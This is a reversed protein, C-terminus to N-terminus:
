FFQREKRERINEKDGTAGKRGKEQNEDGREIFSKSKRKGEKHDTKINQTAM